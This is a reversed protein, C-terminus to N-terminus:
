KGDPGFDVVGSHRKREGVTEFKFSAVERQRVKIVLEMRRNPQLKARPMKFNKTLFTKQNRDDVYQTIDDIFNRTRDEIDFFTIHYENDGIPGGFHVVLNAEYYRKDLDEISTNEYLKRAAHKGAFGILARESLGSPIKAQTLFVAARGSGFATAPVFTMSLLALAVVSCLAQFSVRM